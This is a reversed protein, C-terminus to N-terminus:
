TDLFRLKLVAGSMNPAMSAGVTTAEMKETRRAAWFLGSIVVMTWWWMARTPAKGELSSLEELDERLQPRGQQPHPQTSVQPRGCQQPSTQPIPTALTSMRRPMVSFQAWYWHQCCQFSHLLCSYKDGKSFLQLVLQRQVVFRIQTTQVKRRNHAEILLWVIHFLILFWVSCTKVANLSLRWNFQLALAMFFHPGWIIMLASLHIKAFNRGGFWGNEYFHLKNMASLFLSAFLQPISGELPGKLVM